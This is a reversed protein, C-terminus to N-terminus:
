GLAGGARGREPSRTSARMSGCASERVPLPRAKSAEIPTVLADKAQSPEPEQIDQSPAVISCSPLPTEGELFLRIAPAEGQSELDKKRDAFFPRPSLQPFRTVHLSEALQPLLINHAFVAAIREDMGALAMAVMGGLSSGLVLIPSHFRRTAYTVADRGNQVLDNFSFLREVRPSKGHGQFHVGVVNFGAHSLGDLLEEYFLPHTMTGPLFVIAPAGTDGKWISLAIPVGCSEIMVEEYVDPRQVAALLRQAETRM